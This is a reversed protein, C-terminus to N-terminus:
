ATKTIDHLCISLIVSDCIRIIAISVCSCYIIYAAPVEFKATNPSTSLIQKRNIASNDAICLVQESFAADWILTGKAM